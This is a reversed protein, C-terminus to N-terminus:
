CPLGKEERLMSARALLGMKLEEIVEPKLHTYETNIREALAKAESFKIRYHAPVIIKDDAGPPRCLSTKVEKTVFSGFGFINIHGSTKLEETILEFFSNIINNSDEESVSLSETLKELIKKQDIRKSM